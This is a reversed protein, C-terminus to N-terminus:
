WKVQKLFQLSMPLQDNVTPSEDEIFYYKVGAQQAARLVAPYDVQGTGLVVDNTVDTHGTLEGTKVGKRLDKLHVLEWRKGYKEFLKVPDHGPFVVWLIDMEFSVFEPKTETILLDLLTGDGHPQFEYGHIHYFLKIGHKALAEGARNFVAATERCQQENFTGKHPIWACGAFKLGLTEAERAVGEVDDRFREFPFHGGIGKLGNAELLKRFEDPAMKYTGGLEVERFGLERVRKVTGPVDKAFDARLSYLVLGAPAELSGAIVPMVNFSMWMCNMVLTFIACKIIFTSRHNQFM